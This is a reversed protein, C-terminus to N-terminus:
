LRIANWEGYVWRGQNAFRLVAPIVKEEFRKRAGASLPHFVHAYHRPRGREDLEPPPLLWTCYTCYIGKAASKKRCQPNNCRVEVVKTPMELLLAGTTKNVEIIKMESLIFSDDFILRLYARVKKDHNPDPFMVQIETIADTLRM